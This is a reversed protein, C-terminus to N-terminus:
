LQAIAERDDDAVAEWSIGTSGHQENQKAKTRGNETADAKKTRNRM